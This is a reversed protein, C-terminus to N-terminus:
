PWLKHAKGVSVDAIKEPDRTPKTAKYQAETSSTKDWKWEKLSGSKPNEGWPQVFNDEDHVVFLDYASKQIRLDGRMKELTSADAFVLLDWDSLSTANGSARSGFLWIERIEAYSEVLLRIYHTTADDLM